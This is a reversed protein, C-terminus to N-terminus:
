GQRKGQPGLSNAGQGQTCSGYIREIWKDAEEEGENDRGRAVGAAQLLLVDLRAGPM